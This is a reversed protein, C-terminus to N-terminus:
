AVKTIQITTYIESNGFNNAIGCGYTAFTNVVQNQLEFNKTGAITFYANITSTGWGDTTNGFSNQGFITTTADTTNQLRGQCGGVRFNPILALVYYTGAALTIVSSAISCGTIGNTVTTNLTRKFWSGTTATGGNTNSAQTENFVAMAPATPNEAAFTFNANLSAATLVQGATYTTLPM